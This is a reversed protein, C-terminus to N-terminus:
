TLSTEVRDRGNEKATYLAQDAANVLAAPGEGERARVTAVGLSITVMPAAKSTPHPRELARIAQRMREAITLAVDAPVDPLLVAFEEGGYRAIMDGSRRRSAERLARAIARLCDDGAVHGLTDNYLKFFDVDILILSIPSGRRIGRAWYAQLAREFTRRNGVGTLGDLSALHDLERNSAKLEGQARRLTAETKRHKRVAAELRENAETLREYLRGKEVIIAVEEAIALFGDVHDVRYTGTQVSNFFLFGIAKGMAVLPCSLSSRMGEDVLLRTSESDPHEALYAPLDNIVRPRHSEVVAGLSTASLPVGFGPGLRVRQATSRGWRCRVVGDEEILALGIRDYPVLSRFSDFVHDLVEELSIGANARAILERLKRQEQFQTELHRVHELLRRSSRASLGMPGTEFVLGSTMAPGTNTGNQGSMAVWGGRGVMM